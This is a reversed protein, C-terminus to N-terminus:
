SPGVLVIFEKEKIDLNFDYVAQVRNSYIKNVHQLSVFADKPAVHEDKSHEKAYLNTAKYIAERRKLDEEEAALDAKEQTKKAKKEARYAALEEDSYPKGNPHKKRIFNDLVSM